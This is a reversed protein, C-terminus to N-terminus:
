RMHIRSKKLPEFKVVGLGDVSLVMERCKDCVIQAKKWVDPIDKTLQGDTPTNAVKWSAFKLGCFDCLKVEDTM